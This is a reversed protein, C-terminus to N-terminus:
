VILSEVFEDVVCYIGTNGGILCVEHNAEHNLGSQVREYQYLWCAVANLNDDLNTLASVCEDHSNSGFKLTGNKILLSKLLWWYHGYSRYLELDADLAKVTNLLFKDLWKKKDKEEINLLGELAQKSPVEIENFNM